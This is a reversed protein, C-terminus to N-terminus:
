PRVDYYDILFKDKAVPELVVYKRVFLRDPPDEPRHYVGISYKVPTAEDIVRTKVLAAKKSALYQLIATHAIELEEETLEVLFKKEQAM